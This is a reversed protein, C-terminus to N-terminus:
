RVRHNGGDRGRRHGHIPRKAFEEILATWESETRREAPDVDKEDKLWREFAAGGKPFLTSMEAAEGARMTRKGPGGATGGLRVATVGVTKHEVEAKTPLTIREDALVISDIPPPASTATAVEPKKPM